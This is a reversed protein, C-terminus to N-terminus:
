DSQIRIIKGLMFVGCYIHFEDEASIQHMVPRQVYNNVWSSLITNTPLQLVVLFKRLIYTQSRSRSVWKFSLIIPLLKYSM